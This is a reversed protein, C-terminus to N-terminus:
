VQPQLSNLFNDIHDQSMDGDLHALYTYLKAFTDFPIRAAAGEEDETLIECAVKLSSMLTQSLMNLFVSLLDTDNSLFFLCLFVFFSEANLSM